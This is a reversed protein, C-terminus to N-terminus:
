GCQKKQGSPWGVFNRQSLGEFHLMIVMEEAWWFVYVSHVMLEGPCLGLDYEVKAPGVDWSWTPSRLATIFSEGFQLDSHIFSSCPSWLM